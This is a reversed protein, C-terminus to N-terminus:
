GYALIPYLLIACFYLASCLGLTAFAVTMIRRKGPDDASYFYITFLFLSIFCSMGLLLVTRNPWLYLVAIVLWPMVASGAAFTCALPNRFRNILSATIVAVTAVGASAFIKFLVVEM